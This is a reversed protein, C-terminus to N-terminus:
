EILFKNFKIKEVKGVGELKKNYTPKVRRRLKEKIYLIDNYFKNEFFKEFTKVTLEEFLPMSSKMVKASADNDLTVKITFNLVRVDNVDFAIPMISSVMVIGPLIEPDLRAVQKSLDVCRFGINNLRDKPDSRSRSFSAQADINNNWSGGRIVKKNGAMNRSGSDTWEWVNGLMDHLGFPNAAFSGVPATEKSDWRSRCILCNANNNGLDDGWYYQTTTGARMAKEWEMETPLRKGMMQCYEGAEYWSVQEVPRNAGKFHSPNNGMLAEYEAQTVEYKDMCFANIKMAFLGHELFEGGPIFSMKGPCQSGSKVKPPAPPQLSAVRDQEEKLRRKEEELKRKEENLHQLAAIREREKELSLRDQELKKRERVISDVSQEIQERGLLAFVFDGKDLNPNRIKGYQPHQGGKSYNIVTKQLFEGLEVGTLYGDGDLDGEGNLARIFQDNFISIDPVTEDASGATIFQRVPKSTKFSINEPIARSLAFISGSFCSDFLFLAHKSQIQKSYVEISEMNLSTALFGSKDLNPNPTDSPVFYGMEEGYSLKMTYGHGAFYFILRNDLDQGYMNIFDEISDRLKNRTPNIVVVTHFGKQELAARTENIDRQVGPLNPWGGTYESVGVLLAHSEQYLLVQNGSRDKIPVPVIGRQTASSADFPVPALLPALFFIFSIYKVKSTM